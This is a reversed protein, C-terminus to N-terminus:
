DSWTRQLEIREGDAPINFNRPVKGDRGLTLVLRDGDIRYIGETVVILGAEPSHTMTVRKPSPDPDLKLTYEQSASILSQRGEAPLDKTISAPLEIALDEGSIKFHILNAEREIAEVLRPTVNGDNKLVTWNGQFQTLDDARGFQIQLM